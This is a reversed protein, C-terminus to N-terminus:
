ESTSNPGQRAAVPSLCGGLCGMILVLLSHGIRMFNETTGNPGALLAGTNANWFRVTGSQNAVLTKGDPSFALARVANGTNTPSGSATFGFTVSIM